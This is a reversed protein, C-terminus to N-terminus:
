PGAEWRPRTIRPDIADKMKFSREAVDAALIGIAHLLPILAPEQTDVIRIQEMARIANAMADAKFSIRNYDEENPDYTM